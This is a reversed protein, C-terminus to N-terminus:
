DGLAFVVGLTALLLTVGTALLVSGPDAVPEGARLSHGRRRQQVRARRLHLAAAGCVVAAALLAGATTPAFRACLLGAVIISLITRSWALTTREHQAGRDWLTM